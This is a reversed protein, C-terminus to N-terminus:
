KVKKGNSLTNKNVFPVKVENTGIADGQPPSKTPVDLVFLCFFFKSLLTSNIWKEEYASLYLGDFFLIFYFTSLM